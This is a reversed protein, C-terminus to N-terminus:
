DPTSATGQRKGKVALGTLCTALAFLVGGLGTSGYYSWFVSDRILSESHDKPNYRVMLKRWPAYQDRTTEAVDKRKNKGGFSPSEIAVTDRYAVGEVTYAYEVIVHFAREGEVRSSIIKGEASPWGKTVEGRSVGNTGYWTAAGAGLFLLIILIALIPKPPLRQERLLWLSSGGIILGSLLTILVLM